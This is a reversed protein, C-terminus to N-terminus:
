NDARTPDSDDWSDAAQQQLRHTYGILIGLIEDDDLDSTVRVSWGTSGDPENLQVFALLGRPTTGEPLAPIRLGALVEEIPLAPVSSEDPTSMSRDQSMRPSVQRVM